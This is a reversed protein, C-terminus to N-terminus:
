ACFMLIKEECCWLLFNFLTDWFLRFVRKKLLKQMCGHELRLSGDGTDLPPPIVADAPFLCYISM